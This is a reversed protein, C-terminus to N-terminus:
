LVHLASIYMGLELVRDIYRREVAQDRLVKIEETTKLMPARRAREGKRLAHLDQPNLIIVQGLEVNSDVLLEVRSMSVVVVIM